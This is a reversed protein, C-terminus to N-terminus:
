FEEDGEDGDPEQHAEPLHKKLHKHLEEHSAHHVEEGGEHITTHSGDEHHQTMVPRSQPEAEQAFEDDPEPAAQPKPQPKGAGGIPYNFRAM